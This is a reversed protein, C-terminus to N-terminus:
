CHNVRVREDISKTLLSKLAYLGNSLCFVYYVVEDDIKYGITYGRENKILLNRM